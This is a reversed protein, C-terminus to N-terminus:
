RHIQHDLIRVLVEEYSFSNSIGVDRLPFFLLSDDVCKQLMSVHFVLFIYNLNSPLELEYAVKGVRKLVLYPGVYRPSLKGKKDFRKM